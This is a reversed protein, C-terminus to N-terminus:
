VGKFVLRVSGIRVEDNDYLMRKQIRQSNVFTGNTSALDYAVFKGNEFIIAAHEGSVTGDDLVIQCRTGDRGINTRGRQLPFPPMSGGTKVILWAAPPQPPNMLATHALSVPQPDSNATQAVTRVDWLPDQASPGFRRDGSEAFGGTWEAAERNTWLYLLCLIDLAAPLILGISLGFLLGASLLVPTLWLALKAMASIGLVAVGYTRAWPKSGELLGWVIVFMAIGTVVMLLGITAFVVQVYTVSPLVLGVFQAITSYLFAVTAGSGANFFGSLLLWVTVLAIGAPRKM